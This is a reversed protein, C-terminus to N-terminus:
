WSRMKHGKLAYFLIFLYCPLGVWYATQMSGHHESLIGLLPPLVGGGAIGMILLASGRATFKGLGELALPWLAPWVLAHALGMLAVFLVANPVTAIGTWGFLVEAIGHSETSSLVVGLICISGAVASGLLAQQQSIVRPICTVGLIYGFVMFALPYSALSAFNALGLKSGFLGITDVAIVEVGVYAFLGIAGLIIQPFQVISTKEDIGESIEKEPEIHPLNSFKVLGILATLGVAMFIYPTILKDTLALKQEETVITSPDGMDALVLATFVIPATFGAGKNILGMISIRKAASEKPGLMVVYPNSATQLITLGIGLLFLALLFIPYSATQAAPIFTLAGIAMIALGLSMGNRYGTRDLIFSMPLAMVFYAGYFFSTVLLAQFETLDSVIQLFPILAGNLWTVFGFIFFLIGIITMPLLTSGGGGKKDLIADM